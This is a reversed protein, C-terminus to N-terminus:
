VIIREVCSSGGVHINVCVDNFAAKNDFFFVGAFCPIPTNM